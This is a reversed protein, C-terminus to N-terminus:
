YMAYIKFFDIVNEPKSTLFTFKSYTTKNAWAKHKNTDWCFVGFARVNELNHVSPLLSEGLSGSTILFFNKDFSNANKIYDVIKVTETFELIELGLKKIEESVQKNEGYQINKDIWLIKLPM